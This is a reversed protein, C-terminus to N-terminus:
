GMVDRVIEECDMKHVLKGFTENGSGNLRGRDRVRRTPTIPREGYSIKIKHFQM